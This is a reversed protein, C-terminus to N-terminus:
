QTGLLLRSDILRNHIVDNRFQCELSISEFIRLPVDAAPHSLNQCWRGLDATATTDSHDIVSKM